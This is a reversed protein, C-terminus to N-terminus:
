SGSVDVCVLNGVNTRVYINGQALVPATWCRVASSTEVVQAQSIDHCGKESAEMILLKGWQNLVIFKGDGYILSCHGTDRNWMEEGNEFRICKLYATRHRTDGHPVYLFGDKYISSGFEDQIDKKFWVQKPDNNSFDIVTAGNRYATSIFVRNGVVVPDPSDAGDNFVWPFHWLRDGTALAVGNLRRFAFVAVCKRGQYTYIVPAAYGCRGPPSAWIPKGTNKDLAIGYENANLVVLDDVIVPSGSFGYKPPQAGFEQCVDVQWCCRGNASDLCYVDGKRSFTYVLGDEVVPTSFSGNYSRVTCDYEFRWIEKGSRTDLCYVIDKNDQNGMTYLLGEKVSVASYGPAVKIRWLIKAGGALAKPDWGKEHFIGNGNPGRWAPWDDGLISGAAFVILILSVLITIKKEPMYM